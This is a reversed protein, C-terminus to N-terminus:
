NKTEKTNEVAIEGEAETQEFGLPVSLQGADDVPYENSAKDYLVNMGSFQVPWGRGRGCPGKQGSKSFNGRSPM